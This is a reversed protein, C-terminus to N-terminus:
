DGAASKRNDVPEGDVQATLNVKSRVQDSPWATAVIDTLVDNQRPLISELAESVSDFRQRRGVLPQVYVARANRWMILRCLRSMGAHLAIVEEYDERQTGHDLRIRMHIGHLDAWGRVLALDAIEFALGKPPNAAGGPRKVDRM